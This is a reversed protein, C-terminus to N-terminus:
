IYLKIKQTELTTHAGPIFVLFAKLVISLQIHNADHADGQRFITLQDALVQHTGTDMDKYGSAHRILAGGTEM